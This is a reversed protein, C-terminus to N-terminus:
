HSITPRSRAWTEVDSRRWAVARGVLQVPAPFKHQSVLQYISSRCLGTVQMVTTLRLLQIAATTPDVNLTATPTARMPCDEPPIAEDQHREPAM